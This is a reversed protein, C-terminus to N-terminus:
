LAYFCVAVSHLIPSVQRVAQALRFLYESNPGSPGYATAIQRAIDERPAFGLYNENAALNPSAIYLLACPIIPVTDEAAAFV